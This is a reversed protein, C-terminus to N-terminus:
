KIRSVAGHKAKIVSIVILSCDEWYKTIYFVFKKKNKFVNKTYLNTELILFAWFNNM